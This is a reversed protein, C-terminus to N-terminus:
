CKSLGFCGYNCEVNVVTLECLVWVIELGGDDGDNYVDLGQQEHADDGKNVTALKMYNFMKMAQNPPFNNRGKKSCGFNEPMHLSVILVTFAVTLVAFFIFVELRWMSSIEKEKKGNFFIKYHVDDHM